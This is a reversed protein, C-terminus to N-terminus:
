WEQNSVLQRTPDDDLEAAMADAHATCYRTVVQREREPYYVSFIRTADATCPEGGNPDRYQCTM